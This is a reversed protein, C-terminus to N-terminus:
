LAFMRLIESIVDKYLDVVKQTPMLDQPDVKMEKM